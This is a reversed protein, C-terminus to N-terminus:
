RDHEWDVTDRWMQEERRVAFAGAIVWAAQITLAYTVVGLFIAGAWSWEALRGVLIGGGILVVPAVITAVVVGRRTWILGRVEHDDGPTRAVV